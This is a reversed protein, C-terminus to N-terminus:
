IGTIAFDMAAIIEDRFHSLSGIPNKLLKSPIAAIQPTLLLLTEGDYSIEPTLGQMKENKFNKSRGLPIVIRTAIDSIIPNQIDIIYPLAARTNKSPNIYVDFQSM